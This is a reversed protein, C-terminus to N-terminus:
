TVPRRLELPFAAQRATAGVGEGSIAAFRRAEEHVIRGALRPHVRGSSPPLPHGVRAGVRGSRVGRGAPREEGEGEEGDGDGGHLGLLRRGTAPAAEALLRGHRDHLHRHLHQAVALRYATQRGVVEHDVVLALAPRDLEELRDVQLLQRAGAASGGRVDRGLHRCRRPAVEQEEEVQVEGLRGEDALGLLRGEVQHAVAELRGVQHAHREEM